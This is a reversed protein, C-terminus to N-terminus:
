AAAPAPTAVPTESKRGWFKASRLVRGIKQKLEKRWQKRAAKNNKHIDKRLAREAPSICGVSVDVRFRKVASFFRRVRGPNEIKVKKGDRVYTTEGDAHIHVEDGDKIPENANLVVAKDDQEEMFKVWAPDNERVKSAWDYISTFPKHNFPQWNIMANAANAAINAVKTKAKM